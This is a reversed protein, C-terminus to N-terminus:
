KVELVKIDLDASVKPHLKCVASFTGINKIPTKLTIKKKDVKLGHQKELEQAVEKNTFSGFLKGNGLKGHLVVEVDEIKEKLSKAEALIQQREAEANDDQRKKANLNGATAEVALKKPFLFNRAHGDSTNVLDGKKGIGKVDELLIVKM